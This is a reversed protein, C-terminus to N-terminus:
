PSVVSVGSEHRMAVISARGLTDQVPHRSRLSGIADVRRVAEFPPRVSNPHVDLVRATPKELFGHRAFRRLTERLTPHDPLPGFVTDVLSERAEQDGRLVNPILVYEHRHLAGLSLRTLLPDVERCGARVEGSERHSRGVLMAVSTESRGWRTSLSKWVRQPSAGDPLLVFIRNTSASLFAPVGYRLLVEQVDTRLRERLRHGESSLPLTLDAVALM